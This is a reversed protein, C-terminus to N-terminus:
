GHILSLVIEVAILVIVILEMVEIRRASAQDSLIQYVGEVVDLPLTEGRIQLTEEACVKLVNLAEPLDAPTVPRMTTCGCLVIAMLVLLRKRM